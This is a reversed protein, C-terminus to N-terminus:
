ETPFTRIAVTAVKRVSGSSLTNRSAEVKKSAVTSIGQAAISMNADIWGSKHASFKRDKFIAAFSRVASFTVHVFAGIPRIM